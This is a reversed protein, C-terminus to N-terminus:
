FRCVKPTARIRSLAITLMSDARTTATRFLNRLTVDGSGGDRAFDVDFSQMIGEGETYDYSWMFLRFSRDDWLNVEGNSFQYTIERDSVEFYEPATRGSENVYVSDYSDHQASPPKQRDNTVFGSPGLPLPTCRDECLYDDWSYRGQEPVDPLLDPGALAPNVWFKGHQYREPNEVGRVESPRVQGWYEIELVLHENSSPSKTIPTATALAPLTLLLVGLIRKMFDGPPDTETDSATAVCCGKHWHSLDPRARTSTGHIVSNPNEALLLAEIVAYDPARGRRTPDPRPLRCCWSM